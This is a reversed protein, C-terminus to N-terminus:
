FYVKLNTSWFRDAQQSDGSLDCYFGIQVTQPKTSGRPCFLSYNGCEFQRASPSGELCYYGPDCLGKCLPDSSGTEDNYRGAPCVHKEGNICYHGVPCISINTRTLTSETDDSYYGPPVVTPLDSGAPCYLNVRCFMLKIM